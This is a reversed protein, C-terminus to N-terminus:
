RRRSKRRRSKRKRYSKGGSKKTTDDTYPYVKTHNNSLFTVYNSPTRATDNIINARIANDFRELFFGDVSKQTGTGMDSFRFNYKVNPQLNEFPIQTTPITTPPQLQFDSLAAM